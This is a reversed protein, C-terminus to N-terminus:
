EELVEGDAFIIRLAVRHGLQKALPPIYVSVLDEPAEVEIRHVVARTVPHLFEMVIPFKERPFRYPGAVTVPKAAV